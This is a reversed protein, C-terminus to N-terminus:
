RSMSRRRLMFMGAVSATLLLALFAMNSEDGTKPLDGVSLNSVPKEPAPTATPAPTPVPTPDPLYINDDMELAVMDEAAGDMFVVTNDAEGVTLAFDNDKIEVTYTQGSRGANRLQVPAPSDIDNNELVISTGNGDMNYRVVSGSIDFQSNKVTISPVSLANVGTQVDTVTVNDLTVKPSGANVYVVSGVGDFTSNKVTWTGMASRGRISVMNKDKDDDKFTCGDVTVNNLNSNKDGNGFMYAVSSGTADFVVNKVMVSASSSSVGKVKIQRRVVTGSQGEITVQTGSAQTLLATGGTFEAAALQVTVSGLNKASVATLAADLTEYEGNVSEVSAGTVIAATAALASVGTLCLILTVAIMIIRKLNM